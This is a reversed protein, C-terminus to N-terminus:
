VINRVFVVNKMKRVVVCVIMVKREVIMDWLMYWYMFLCCILFELILKILVVFYM